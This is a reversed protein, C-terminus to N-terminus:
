RGSEVLDTTQDAIPGSPEFLRGIGPLLSLGSRSGIQIRADGVSGAWLGAPKDLSILVVTVPGSLGDGGSPLFEYRARVDAPSLTEGTVSAVTAQIPEGDMRSGDTYLTVEVNQNSHLRDSYEAPIFTALTAGAASSEAQLVVGPGEAYVPLRAAQLLVALLVLLFGAMWGAKTWPPQAYRPLEVKELRQNHERLASERFIRRTM